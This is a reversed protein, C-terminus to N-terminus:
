VFCLTVYLNLPDGHIPISRQGQKGMSPSIERMQMWTASSIEGDVNELLHIGGAPFRSRPRTAM